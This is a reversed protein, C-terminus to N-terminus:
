LSELALQVFPGSAPAEGNGGLDVTSVVDGGTVGFKTAGGDPTLVVPLNDQVNPNSLMAKLAGVTLPAFAPSTM